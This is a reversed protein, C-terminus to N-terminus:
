RLLWHFSERLYAAGDERVPEGHAIIIGKPDWAIMREVAARAARRNKFSARWERPMGGHKGLMGDAWMILRHILNLSKPPFRQICDTVILTRSERHFFVVETLASSGALLVQDLDSAWEPEPADGLTAAFDLDGRKKALGPAAYLKAEPYRESWETLFLHHIKNPAILYRVPGLAEIAHIDCDALRIPSIVMLAGDQLRALTMRTPYPVTFFPVPEGDITWLNDAWPTLAAIEYTKQM